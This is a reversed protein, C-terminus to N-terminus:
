MMQYIRLIQLCRHLKKQMTKKMLQQSLIIHIWYDINVVETTQLNTNLKFILKEINISSLYNIIEVNTFLLELLENEYQDKSILENIIGEFDCDISNLSYALFYILNKKHNISKPNIINKCVLDLLPKLAKQQFKDLKDKVIEQMRTSEKVPFFSAKDLDNIIKNMHRCGFLVPKSGLIDIISTFVDRAKEASCIFNSPHACDNITDICRILEKAENSNLMDIKDTACQEVLYKEYVEMQKIKKEVNNDLERVDADSSALSKVKKHLDYMGAIVSMIVCAKFSGSNYCKM